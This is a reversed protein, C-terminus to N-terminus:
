INPSQNSTQTEAFYRLIVPHLSYLITSIYPVVLLVSKSLFIICHPLNLVIDKKDHQVLWIYFYNVTKHKKGTNFHLKKM